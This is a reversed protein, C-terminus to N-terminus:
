SGFEKLIMAKHDLVFRAFANKDEDKLFYVFLKDGLFSYYHFCAQLFKFNEEEENSIIACSLIEVASLWSSINKQGVINFAAEKLAREYLNRLAIFSALKEKELSSIQKRVVQMELDSLCDRYEGVKKIKELPGNFLTWWEKDQM